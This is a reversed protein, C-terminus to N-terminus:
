LVGHKIQSLNEITRKICQIASRHYLMQNNLVRKFIIHLWDISEDVNKCFPIYEDFSYAKCIIKVEDTGDSCFRFGTVCFGPEKQQFEDVWQDNSM